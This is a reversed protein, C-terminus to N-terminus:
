GVETQQQPLRLPQLRLLQYCRNQLDMVSSHVLPEVCGLVVCCCHSYYSADHHAHCHCRCCYFYCYYGYCRHRHRRHHSSRIERARHADNM